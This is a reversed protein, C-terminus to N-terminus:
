CSGPGNTRLIKGEINWQSGWCKATPALFRCVEALQHVQGKYPLDNQHTYRPVSEGRLKPKGKVACALKNQMQNPYGAPSPFQQKVIGSKPVPENAKTKHADINSNTQAKQMLIQKHCPKGPPVTTLFGGALAPSMPELGPGPLDWM